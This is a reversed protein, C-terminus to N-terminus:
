DNVMTTLNLKHKQNGLSGVAKEIMNQSKLM